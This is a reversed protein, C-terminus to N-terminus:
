ATQGPSHTQFVPSSKVGPVEISKNQASGKASSALDCLLRRWQEAVAEVSHTMVFSRGNAGLAMALTRDYYLRRVAHIASTVDPIFRFFGSKAEPQLIGGVPFGANARHLYEAHSSFNTYIVPLASCMAEWAPLGLGESGTLYLLADWAQYLSPMDEPRLGATTSLGNTYFIDANKQVRYENELRRVSFDAERDNEPTHLWLFIDRMPEAKGASRARCSPCTSRCDPGARTAKTRSGAVGDPDLLKIDGCNECILYNGSRLWHITEYLSWIQKRWKPKGVWGLVFADHPMWNPFIATRLDPREAIPAPTFCQVSAPPYICGVKFNTFQSRIVDSSFVSTTLIVDARKLLSGVEPGLPFDDVKLYLILKCDPDTEGLGSRVLHLPNGVAFLIDPKFSGIFRHLTRQGFLDDVVFQKRVAETAQIPWFPKTVAHSHFLGVQLLNFEEPHNAILHGFILRTIEAVSTPLV